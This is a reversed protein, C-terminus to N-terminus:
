GEKFTPVLGFLKYAEETMVQLLIDKYGATTYISDHKTILPMKPHEKHLRKCVVELVYYSEMCQLLIPFFAKESSLEKIVKLMLSWEPHKKKFKGTDGQYNKPKTFFLSFFLDKVRRQNEKNYEIGFLNNAVYTYLNGELCLDIYDRICEIDVGQLSKAIMHFSKTNNFNHKTHQNIYTNLTQPLIQPHKSHTQPNFGSKLNTLIFNFLVASLFPQCNAIDYGVLPERNIRLAPFLRSSLNTLSSHLRGAKDDRKLYINETTIDLISQERQHFARIPDITTPEYRFMGKKMRIRPNSLDEKLMACSLEQAQSSDISVSQCWQHLFELGIINEPQRIQKRLYKNETFSVTTFMSQYTTSSYCFEPINITASRCQKSNEYYRCYTIIGRDHMWALYFPFDKRILQVISACVPGYGDSLHNNTNSRISRELNYLIALCHDKNFNIKDKEAQLIKEWSEQSIRLYLM